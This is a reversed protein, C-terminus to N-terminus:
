ITIASGGVIVLRDGLGSDKTLLAGLLAFREDIRETRTLTRDFETRDTM